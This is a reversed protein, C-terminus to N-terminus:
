QGKNGWIKKVKRIYHINKFLTLKPEISNFTVMMPRFNETINVWDKYLTLIIDKDQEEREERNESKKEETGFVVM